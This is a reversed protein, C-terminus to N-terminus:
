ASFHSVIVDQILPLGILIRFVQDKNIPANALPSSNDPQPEKVAAEEM